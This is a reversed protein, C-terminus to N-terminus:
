IGHCRKMHSSLTKKNKFYTPCLSCKITQLPKLKYVNHRRNMHIALNFKNKSVFSCISCKAENQSKKSNEEFKRGHGVYKQHNDLYIKSQFIRSCTECQWIAEDRHESNQHELLLKKCRFKADCFSCKKLKTQLHFQIHSKRNYKAGCKDCSFQNEPNEKHVKMHVAMKSKCQTKVPCLDCQHRYEARLGQHVERFHKRMISLTSFTKSCIKCTKANKTNYHLSKNFHDRLQKWTEYIKTCKVEVCNFWGSNNRHGDYHKEKIAKCYIKERCLLCLHPQRFFHDIFHRVTVCCEGCYFGERTKTYSKSKLPECTKCLLGDGQFFKNCRECKEYTGFVEVVEFQDKLIKLDLKTKNITLAKNDPLVVLFNQEQEQKIANIATKNKM